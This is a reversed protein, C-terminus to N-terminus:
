ITSGWWHVHLSRPWITTFKSVSFELNGMHLIYTVVTKTYQYVWRQLIKTPLHNNCNLQLAPWPANIYGRPHAVEPRLNAITKKCGMYPFDQGSLVYSICDARQGFINSDPTSFVKRAYLPAGDHSSRSPGILCHNQPCNQYHFIFTWNQNKFMSEVDLECLLQGIFSKGPILIIMPVAEIAVDLIRICM